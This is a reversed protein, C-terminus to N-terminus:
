LGPPRQLLPLCPRSGIQGSVVIPVIGLSAQVRAPVGAPCRRHLRPLVPLPYELIANPQMLSRAGARAEAEREAPQATRKPPPRRMPWTMPAVSARASRELLPVIVKWFMKAVM